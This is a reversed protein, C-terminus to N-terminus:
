SCVKGVSLQALEMSALAPIAHLVTLLGALLLSATARLTGASSRASSHESPPLM